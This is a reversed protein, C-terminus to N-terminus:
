INNSLLRKNNFIKELLIRNRITNDKNKTATETATIKGKAFTLAAKALEAAQPELRAKYADESEGEEIKTKWTIGNDKNFEIYKTAVENTRFFNEWEEIM